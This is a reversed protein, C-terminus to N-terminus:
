QLWICCHRFFTGPNHNTSSTVFNVLAEEVSYDVREDGHPKSIGASDNQTRGLGRLWESANAFDEHVEAFKM